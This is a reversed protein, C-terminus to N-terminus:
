LAESTKLYFLTSLKHLVKPNKVFESCYLFALIVLKTKTTGNSLFKALSTQLGQFASKNSGSIDLKVNVLMM